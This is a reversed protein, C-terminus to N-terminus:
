LNTNWISEATIMPNDKAMAMTIIPLLIDMTMMVAVVVAAMIITATMTVAATIIMAETARNMGTTTSM